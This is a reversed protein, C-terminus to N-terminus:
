EDMSWGGHVIKSFPASTHEGSPLSVLMLRNNKTNAISTLPNKVDTVCRGKLFTRPLEEFSVQVKENDFHCSSM